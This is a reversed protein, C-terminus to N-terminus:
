LMGKVRLMDHFVDKKLSPNRLLFSPHYTPILKIGNFDLVEGRIQSIKMDYDKTLHHYSTSGLAVIIKPKVAKIQELLYPFCADVEELTPVRNNPPRCKVINAIFVDERRLKLVNNIIKTLMDGSRGVFPRGLADESAGPGEGIFMLDANENGEGFVVNKRTKSLACLHCNSTMQSMRQINEPIPLSINNQVIKPEKIYEFGLARYQYLQYLTQARQLQTM